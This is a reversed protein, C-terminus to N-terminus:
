RGYYIEADQLKEVDNGWEGCAERCRILLQLLSDYEGTEKYAQVIRDTDAEKGDEHLPGQVIYQWRYLEPFQFYYEKFTFGYKRLAQDYKVYVDAKEVEAFCEKMYDDVEKESVSIGNKEAYWEIARTLTIFEKATQFSDEEAHGIMKGTELCLYVRTYPTDKGLAKDLAMTQSYIKGLEEFDEAETIQESTINAPEEAETKQEAVDCGSMVLSVSFVAALLFIWRRKM